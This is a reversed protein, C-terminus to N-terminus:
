IATPKESGTNRKTITASRTRAPRRSAGETRPTSSAPWGAAAPVRLSRAPTASCPPLSDSVYARPRGAEARAIFSGGAISSSILSMFHQQRQYVADRREQEEIDTYFCYIVNYGDHSESTQCGDLRIRVSEGNKQRLPM